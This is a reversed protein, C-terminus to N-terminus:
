FESRAKRVAKELEDWAITAGDRLHEWAAGTSQTIERLKERAATQKAELNAMTDSWTAMTADKLTVSKTQIERIEGRLRDLQETLTHEFEQKTIPMADSEGPASQHSGAPHMRSIVDVPTDCPTPPPPGGENVEAQMMRALEDDLVQSRPQKPQSSSM